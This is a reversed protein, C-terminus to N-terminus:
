HFRLKHERNLALGAPMKVFDAVIEVFAVHKVLFDWGEAQQTAVSLM